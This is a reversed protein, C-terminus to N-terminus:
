FPTIIARVRARDCFAAESRGGFSGTLWRSGTFLRTVAERIDTIWQSSDLTACFFPFLLCVAASREPVPASKGQKAGIVYLSRGM